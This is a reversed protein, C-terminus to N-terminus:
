ERLFSRHIYRVDIRTTLMLGSLAYTRTVFRRFRRGQTRQAVCSGCAPAPPWRLRVGQLVKLLGPAGAQPDPIGTQPDRLRHLVGSAKTAATSFRQM